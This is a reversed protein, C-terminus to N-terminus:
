YGSILLVIRRRTRSKENVVEAAAQDSETDAGCGVIWLWCWFAVRTWQKQLTEEEHM